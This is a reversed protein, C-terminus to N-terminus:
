IQISMISLIAFFLTLLYSSVIAGKPCNKGSNKCAWLNTGQGDLTGGIVSVGTVREFKIWNGSHGIVNFNSPAVLTGDIRFTISSSKCSQGGFIASSGILFRGAPVYITSSPTSSCAAAWASLFAKTCDTNGDSKAGFSEVNYMSNSAASLCYIKMFLFILAFSLTTKQSM